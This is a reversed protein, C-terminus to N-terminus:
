KTVKGNSPNRLCYIYAVNSYSCKRGNEDECVISIRVARPLRQKQSYDWEELWELGDFFELDIHELGEMVDSFERDEVFASPTEVFKSRSVLLTHASKDFKYVVDFLGDKFDDLGSFRATTVFHLIEGTARDPGGKFYNVPKELIGQTKPLEQVSDRSDEPSKAYSCRIQRAMQELMLRAQESATMRAKYAEASKSTAFYSGYVMSVISVVIAMAALMEILTFGKKRLRLVM